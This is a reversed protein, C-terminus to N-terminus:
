LIGLLWSQSILEIVELETSVNMCPGLEQDYDMNSENHLSSILSFGVIVSGV